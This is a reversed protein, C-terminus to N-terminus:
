STATEKYKSIGKGISTSWTLTGSNFHSFNFPLFLIHTSSVLIKFSSLSVQIKQNNQNIFYRPKFNNELLSVINCSIDCLEHAHFLIHWSFLETLTLQRLLLHYLKDKIRKSMIQNYRSSECLIWNDFNREMLYLKVFDTQLNQVDLVNMRNTTYQMQRHVPKYHFLKLNEKALLYNVVQKKRCLRSFLTLGDFEFIRSSSFGIREPM